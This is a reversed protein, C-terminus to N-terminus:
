NQDKAFRASTADKKYTSAFQQQMQVSSAITGTLSAGGSTGNLLAANTDNETIAQGASKAADGSSVTGNILCNILSAVGQRITIASM